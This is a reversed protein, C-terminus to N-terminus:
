ERELAGVRRDLSQLTTAMREFRRDLRNSMSRLENVVAAQISRTEDIVADVRRHLEELEGSVSARFERVVTALEDITM